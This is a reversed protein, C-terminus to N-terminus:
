QGGRKGMGIPDRDLHMEIRGRGLGLGSGDADYSIWGTAHGYLIVQGPTTATANFHSPDLPGAGGIGAIITAPVGGAWQLDTATHLTIPRNLVASFISADTLDLGYGPGSLQTTYTMKAM